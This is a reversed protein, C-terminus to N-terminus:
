RLFKMSMYVDSSALRGRRPRGRALSYESDIRVPQGYCIMIGALYRHRKIAQAHGRLDLGLPSPTIVGEAGM